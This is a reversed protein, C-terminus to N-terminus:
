LRKLVATGKVEFSFFLRAFVYILRLVVYVVSVTLPKRKLIPQLEPNPKSERLTEQWHSNPSSNRSLVHNKAEPLDAGDIRRACLTILEGVTLISTTEKPEFQIELAQEVKVICETRALSDLGLDIELHLWPHLGQTEALH